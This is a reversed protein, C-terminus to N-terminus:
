SSPVDASKKPCSGQTVFSSFCFNKRQSFFLLEEKTLWPLQSVFSSSKNSSHGSCKYVLTFGWWASHQQITLPHDHHTCSCWPFCSVSLCWWTPPGRNEEKQNTGMAYLGHRSKCLSNFNWLVSSFFFPVECCCEKYLCSSRLVSTSRVPLGTSIIM